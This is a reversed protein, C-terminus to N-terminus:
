TVLTTATSHSNHTAASSLCMGLGTGYFFSIVSLHSACTSFAKYKGQASSKAHISSISKSYSYLVGSMSVGVLLVATVYIIVVNLFTDNCASHIVPDLECFFHPIKLDKCFNLQLMLLSHVLSNLVIIVWSILIFQVCVCPNMIILYHLPHCIAVFRDYVMLDLLFNDLPVFFIFFLMQTICGAYSIARSQTQINELM